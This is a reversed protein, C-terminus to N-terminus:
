RVSFRYRGAGLRSDTVSKEDIPASWSRDGLTFRYQYRLDFNFNISHFGIRLRSESANMRIGSVAQEGRDSLRELPSGAIDLEDIWVQPSHEACFARPQFRM